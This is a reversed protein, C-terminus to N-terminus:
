RCAASGAASMSATFFNPGCLNPCLYGSGFGRWRMAQAITGIGCAVMTLAVVGRVQDFSGGIEAILVVPLVLTSSMLFIHQVGLLVLVSTPPRDEAAYVLGAPAPDHRDRPPTM